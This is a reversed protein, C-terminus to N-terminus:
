RPPDTASQNRHICTVDLKWRHWRALEPKPTAAISLIDVTSSHVERLFQVLFSSHSDGPREARRPHKRSADCSHSPIRHGARQKALLVPSAEFVRGGGSRASALLECARRPRLL